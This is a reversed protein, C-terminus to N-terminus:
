TACLKYATFPCGKRFFISLSPRTNRSESVVRPPPQIMHQWLLRCFSMHSSERARVEWHCPGRPSVRKAQSQGQLWASCSGLVARTIDSNKDWKVSHPVSIYLLTLIKSLPLSKVSSCFQFWFFELAWSWKKALRNSRTVQKPQHFPLLWSQSIIGDGHSFHTAPLRSTM